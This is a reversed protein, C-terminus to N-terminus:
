FYREPLPNSVHIHWHIDFLGSVVKHFTGNQIPFYNGMQVRRHFVIEETKFFQSLAIKLIFIVLDNVKSYNGIQSPKM